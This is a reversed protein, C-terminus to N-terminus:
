ALRPMESRAAKIAMNPFSHNFRKPLALTLPESVTLALEDSHDGPLEVEDHLAKRKHELRGQEEESVSERPVKPRDIQGDSGDDNVDGGDSQREVNEDHDSRRDRIITRELGGNGM